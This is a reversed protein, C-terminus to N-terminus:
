FKYGCSLSTKYYVIETNTNQQKFHGHNGSYLLELVLNDRTFGGGLGWYVGCETSGGNKYVENANFIDLGLRGTLYPKIGNGNFNYNVVGYIPIFSIKKGSSDQFKRESQYELGIGYELKQKAFYYEYGITLGPDIDTKPGTGTDLGHKGELDYGIKVVSDALAYNGFVFVSVLVLTVVLMFRKM